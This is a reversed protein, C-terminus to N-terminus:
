ALPANQAGSKQLLLRWFAFVAFFHFGIRRSSLGSRKNVRQKVHFMPVGLHQDVFSKLETTGERWQASATAVALNRNRFGVHKSRKKVGFRL